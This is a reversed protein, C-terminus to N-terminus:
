LKLWPRVLDTVTSCLRLRTEDRLGAGGLRGGGVRATRRRLVERSASNSRRASATSAALACSVWRRWFSRSAVAARSASSGPQAGLLLGDLAGLLFALDVLLAGGCGCASTASAAFRRRRGLGLGGGRARVGSGCDIRRCRLRLGRADLGATGITRLLREVLRRDFLSSARRALPSSSRRREPLSVIALAVSSSPRWRESAAIFRRCSRSLRRSALWEPSRSFTTRSTRHGVGDGDLLQGVAHGLADRRHDLESICFPMMAVWFWVM